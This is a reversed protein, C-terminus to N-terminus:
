TSGRSRFADIERQNPLLIMAGVPLVKVHIGQGPDFVKQFLLKNIEFVLTELLHDNLQVVAISRPTDGSQVIYMRRADANAHTSLSPKGLVTSQKSPSVVNQDKSESVESESEGDDRDDTSFPTSLRRNLSPSVFESNAKLAKHQGSSVFADLRKVSQGSQAVYSGSDTIEPRFSRKPLALQFKLFVDRISHPVMDSPLEEAKTPELRRKPFLNEVRETGASAAVSGPPAAGDARKPAELKRSVNDGQEIKLSMAENRPKAFTKTEAVTNTEARAKTKALISNEKIRSDADTSSFISKVRTPELDIRPAIRVADLANMAVPVETIGPLRKAVSLIVTQELTPEIKSALSPGTKPNFILKLTPAAARDPVLNARESKAFRQIGDSLPFDLRRIPQRSAPADPRAVPSESRGGNATGRPNDRQNKAISPGTLDSVRAGDKGGSVAPRDGTRVNRGGATGPQDSWKVDSKSGSNSKQEGRSGHGNVPNSDSRVDNKVSSINARETGRVDGKAGSVIAQAAGRADSKTGSINKQDAGHVNDKLGANDNQATVRVDGKAGSIGQRGDGSAGSKTGNGPGPPSNERIGFKDKPGDTVAAPGKIIAEKAAPEKYGSGEKTGALEKAGSTEKAGSLETAGKIGSAGSKIASSEPAKAAGGDNVLPQSKPGKPTRVDSTSPIKRSDTAAVSDASKATGVVDKVPRYGSTTAPSTSDAKSTKDGQGVPASPERVDGRKVPTRTGIEAARPGRQARDDVAHSGPDVQPTAKEKGARPDLKVPPNSRSGGFETGTWPAKITKVEATNPRIDTGIETKPSLGKPGATVTPIKGDVLQKGDIPNTGGGQATKGPVKVGDVPQSPVPSKTADVKRADPSRTEGSTAESVGPPVKGPVRSGDGPQMPIPSKTGGVKGTEPPRTEGATARPGKKEAGSTVPPPNKGETVNSPVAPKVGEIKPPPLKTGDVFSSPSHGVPALEPGSRPGINNPKAQSVGSPGDVPARNAPKLGPPSSVLDSKPAAHPVAGGEIGSVPTGNVPIKNIRSVDATPQSSVPSREVVKGLDAKVGVEISNTLPSPASVERRLTSTPENAVPAVDAPSRLRGAEPESQGTGPLKQVEAPRPGTEALPTPINTSVVPKPLEFDSGVARNLPSEAGTKVENPKAVSERTVGTTTGHVDASGVRDSPVTSRALQADPQAQPAKALGSISDVAAKVQGGTTPSETPQKVSSAVAAADATKVPKEAKREDAIKPVAHPLAFPGKADLSWVPRGENTSFPASSDVHADGVQGPKSVEGPVRDKAIALDTGLNSFDGFNTGTRQVGFEKIVATNIAPPIDNHGSVSTSAPADLNAQGSKKSELDREGSM